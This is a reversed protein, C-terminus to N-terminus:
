DKEKSFYPTQPAIMLCYHNFHRNLVEIADNKLVAYLVPQPILRERKDIVAGHQELIAELTERLSPKVEGVLENALDPWHEPNFNGYNLKVKM